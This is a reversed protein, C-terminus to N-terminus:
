DTSGFGRCGAPHFGSNQPFLDGIGRNPFESSHASSIAKKAESLALNIMPLSIEM